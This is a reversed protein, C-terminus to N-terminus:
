NADIDVWFARLAQAATSPLETPWWHPAHAMVTVQAKARAAAWAHQEPTGNGNSVDAAAVLALGPRAGASALHEGADSMAPQVAARLLSLVTDGMDSSMGAAVARGADGTMGLGSVVALREEFSGGFIEDALKEGADPTQWTQALSHWVFDPAFVGLADSAWSRILEPHHMAIQVVHVGGWDHGVLDVPRGFAALREALWDRYADPSPDFRSSRPVGFGPPSLSIADDRDLAEILGNWISANEPNGHVFVLPTHQTM